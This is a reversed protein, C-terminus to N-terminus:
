AVVTGGAVLVASKKTEGARGTESFSRASTNEAECVPEVAEKPAQRRGQRCLATKTQITEQDM